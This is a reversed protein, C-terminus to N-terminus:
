STAERNGPLPQLIPSRTLRLYVLTHVSRVYLMILAQVLLYLPAFAAFCSLAIWVLSPGTAEGSFWSLVAVLLPATVPLMAVSNVVALGAYLVFAMLVFIGLNEKVLGWARRFADTPSMADAVLATQSQEIIARVLLTAPLFLFQGVVSGLGLTVFGVLVLGTSFVALFIFTGLGALLTAELSRWFYARGGRSVEAFTPIVQGRELQIIGFTTAARAFVQCVFSIAGTIVATLILLILTPNNPLSSLDSMFDKSLFFYGLVLLYFIAPILPLACFAWLVKQKWTIQWARRLVDWSDFNM